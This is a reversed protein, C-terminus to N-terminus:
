VEVAAFLKTTSQKRNRTAEKRRKTLENISTSLLAADESSAKLVIRNIRVPLDEFFEKPFVRSSHKLILQHLESSSTSTLRVTMAYLGLVTDVLEGKSEPVSYDGEFVLISEEIWNSGLKQLPVLNGDYYAFMGQYEYTCLHGWQELRCRREACVNTSLGVNSKSQM